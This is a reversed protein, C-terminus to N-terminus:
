ECCEGFANAGLGLLAVAFFAAATFWGLGFALVRCSFLEHPRHVTGLMGGVAMRGATVFQADFTIFPGGGLWLGKLWIKWQFNVVTSSFSRSGECFGLPSGRDSVLGCSQGATELWFVRRAEEALM